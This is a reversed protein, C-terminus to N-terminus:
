GPKVELVVLGEEATSVGSEDEKDWKKFHIRCPIKCLADNQMAAGDRAVQFFFFFASM